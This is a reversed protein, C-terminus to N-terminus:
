ALIYAGDNLLILDTSSVTITVVELQEGDLVFKKM